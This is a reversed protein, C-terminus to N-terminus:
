ESDATTIKSAHMLLSSCYYSHIVPARSFKEFESIAFCQQLGGSITFNNIAADHQMDQNICCKYMSSQPLPLPMFLVSLSILHMCLMYSTLFGMSRLFTKLAESTQLPLLFGIM